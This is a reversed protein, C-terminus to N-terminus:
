AARKMGRKSPTRAELREFKKELESGLEALKLDGFEKRCKPFYENEEEEVHHEVLEKLVTVRAKFHDHSPSTRKIKRILSRVLDHEVYSELTTDLDVQEGEPYFIQEEIKAHHDLKMALENFLAKRERGAKDGLKEIRSFLEEVERHQSELFTIADM